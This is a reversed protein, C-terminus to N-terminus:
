LGKQAWCAANKIGPYRTDVELNTVAESFSRRNLAPNIIFLGRLGFAIEVYADFRRALVDAMSNTAHFFRTNEVLEISEALQRAMFISAAIGLVMVGLGLLVPRLSHQFIVNTM